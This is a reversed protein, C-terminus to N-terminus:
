RPMAESMRRRKSCSCDSRTAICWALAAFSALLRKRAFILWSIRVGIFATSPRDYRSDRVAKLSSCCPMSRLTWTAPLASRATMLSIKSKELISAPSIANSRTGTSRFWTTRSTAASIARCARSFPTAKTTSTLSGTGCGRSPSLTRKCCIRMLRSLLAM